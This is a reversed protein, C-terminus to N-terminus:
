AQPHGGARHLVDGPQFGGDEGGAGRRARVMGKKTSNWAVGTTHHAKVYVMLELLLNKFGDCFAIQPPSTLRFEKRINNSWYDSGGVYSEIFDRPAPKVCVWNLCQIGEACTKAHKEWENRKILSSAEKMHDAIPKLISQLVVKDTPEKCNVALLLFDRLADWAKKVTKGIENADGGLATCAAVFPDLYSSCYSDFEKISNPLEASSEGSTSEGNSISLKAEIASLRTLIQQLVAIEAM